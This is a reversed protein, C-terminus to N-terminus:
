RSLRFSWPGLGGGRELKSWQKYQEFVERGLKRDSSNPSDYHLCRFCM